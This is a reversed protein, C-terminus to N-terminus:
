LALTAVLMTFALGFVSIALKENAGSAANLKAAEATPALAATDAPTAVAGPLSTAVAGPLPTPILVQDIVHVVGNNYFCDALVITADNVHVTTNSATVKITSGGALSNFFNSAKFGTSYQVSTPVVHYQLVYRRQVDTLGSLFSDYKVMAADSPVFVTTGQLLDLSGTPQPGSMNFANLAALFRQTSVGSTTEAGANAALTTSINQPSEVVSNIAYVNGNTANYTTAVSQGTGWRVHVTGSINYWVLPPVTNALVYYDTDDKLSANLFSFAQSGAPATALDASGYKATVAADTSVFLTVDTRNWEPHTASLRGVRTLGNAQLVDPILTSASQAVAAGILLTSVAITSLIPM